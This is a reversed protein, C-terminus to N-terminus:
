DSDPLPEHRHRLGILSGFHSLLVTCAAGFRLVDLLISGERSLMGRPVRRLIVEKTDRSRALVGGASVSLVLSPPDTTIKRSCGNAGQEVHGSLIVNRGYTCGTLATLGSLDGFLM